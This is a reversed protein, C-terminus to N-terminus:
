AVARRMKVDILDYRVGEFGNKMRFVAEPKIKKVEDAMTGIWKQTQGIYNFKYIGLGSISEGIKKINEKLKRDSLLLPGGGAGPISLLSTGISLAETFAAAGVNQMVPPPPAIDPMKVMAQQAFMSMKQHKTKAAAKAGERNLQRASKNLQNARDSGAKLYAALDLSSIRQASKGTVGSAALKAGTNNQLFEKWDKQDERMAQDVLDGHKEQIDAYINALGLDAANLGQEYQIREVGTMSLQQMWEQERRQLQYQYNRRANENAARAQAGLCM